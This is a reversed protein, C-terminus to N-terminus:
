RVARDGARDVGTRRITPENSVSDGNAGAKSTEMGRRPGTDNDITLCDKNGTVLTTDNSMASVDQHAWGSFDFGNGARREDDVCLGCRGDGARDVVPQSTGCNGCVFQEPHDSITRTSTADAPVSTSSGAAMLENAAGALPRSEERRM